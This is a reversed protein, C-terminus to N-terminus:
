HPSTKKDNEEKELKREGRLTLVGDEVTVKLDEKKVEPLEAKIKYEKNNEMIDVMPFWDSSTVPEYGRGWGNSTGGFLRDMDRQFRELERFPGWNAQLGWATDDSKKLPNLKTLTNM